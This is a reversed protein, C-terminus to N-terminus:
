TKIHSKLGDIEKMLLFMMDNSQSNKQISDKVNTNSNNVFLNQSLKQVNVDNDKDLIKQRKSRLEDLIQQPDFDTM